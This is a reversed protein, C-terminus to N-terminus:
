EEKKDQEEAKKKIEDQKDKLEKKEDAPVKDDEKKIEKEQEQFRKRNQELRKEIKEKEKDTVYGLMYEDAKIRATLKKHTAWKKLSADGGALNDMREEYAKVRDSLTEKRSDIDEKIKEIAEKLKERYGEEGQLEDRAEEVRKRYEVDVEMLEIRAQLLKKTSSHIRMAAIPDAIFAMFSENLPEINSENWYKEFLFEKFSLVKSKM